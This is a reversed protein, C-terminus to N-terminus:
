YCKLKCWINLLCLVHSVYRNKKWNFVTDHMLFVDTAGMAVLLPLSTLLAGTEIYLRLLYLGRQSTETRKVLFGVWQSAMVRKDSFGLSKSNLIFCCLWCVFTLGKTISMDRQMTMQSNYVSQETCVWSLRQQSFIISLSLMSYLQVDKKSM